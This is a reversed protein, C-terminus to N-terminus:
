LYELESSDLHSSLPNLILLNRPFLRGGERMVVGGESPKGKGILLALICCAIGWITRELFM